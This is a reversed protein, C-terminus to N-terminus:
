NGGISYDYQNVLESQTKNIFWDNGQKVLTVDGKYIEAVTKKNNTKKLSKLVFSLVIEDATASKVEITDVVNEIINSNGYKYGSFTGLHHQWTPTLIDYAKEYNGETIYKHYQTFTRGATKIDEMNRENVQNKENINNNKNADSVKSNTNFSNDTVDNVNKHLWMVGLAAVVIMVLIVYFMSNNKKGGVSSETTILKKPPEGTSEDIITKTTNKSSSDKEEGCSYCYKGTNLTGCHYCRWPNKGDKTKGCRSCFRAIRENEEGCICKWVDPNYVIDKQTSDVELDGEDDSVPQSEEKEEHLVDLFFEISMEIAKEQIAMERMSAKIKGLTEELNDPSETIAAKIDRAFNKKIVQDIITSIFVDEESTNESIFERLDDTRDILTKDTKIASKLEEQLSM